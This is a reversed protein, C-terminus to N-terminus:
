LDDEDGSDGAEYEETGDDEELVLVECSHADKGAFKGKEIASKGTYTMQVVEGRVVKEMAKELMGMTNLALNKGILDKHKGDKFEAEEIEFVFVEKDYKDDTYQEVYKGIFYDGTSWDSWKRFVKSGNVKRATKYKRKETM